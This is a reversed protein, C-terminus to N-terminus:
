RRGRVSWLDAALGNVNFHDGARHAELRLRLRFGRDWCPVAAWADAGTIRGGPDAPLELVASSVTSFLRLRGASGPAAAAWVFRDIAAGLVAGGNYDAM